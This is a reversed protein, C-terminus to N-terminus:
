YKLVIFQWIFLCIFCYEVTFICYVGLKALVYCIWQNSELHLRM